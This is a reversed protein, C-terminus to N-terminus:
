SFRLCGDKSAIEFAKLFDTYLSLWDKNKRKESFEIALIQNQTFDKLLEKSIETGIFGECDSFYLLEIFPISEYDFEIPEQFLESITKNRNYTLDISTILDQYNYNLMEALMRRWIGYSSYAGARFSIENKFTYYGDKIGSSQNFYIDNQKLNICNNYRVYADENQIDCYQINSVALIDLGM